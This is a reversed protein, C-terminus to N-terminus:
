PTVGADADTPEAWVTFADRSGGLTSGCGDCRRWSFDRRACGCEVDDTAWEPGTADLQWLIHVACDDAHEEALM